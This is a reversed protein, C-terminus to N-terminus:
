DDLFRMYIEGNRRLSLYKPIRKIPLIKNGPLKLGKKPIRVKLRFHKTDKDFEYKDNQSWWRFPRGGVALTESLDLFLLQLPSAPNNNFHRTAEQWQPLNADVEVKLGSIPEKVKAEFKLTSKGNRKSESWFAMKLDGKRSVEAGGGVIENTEEVASIPSRVDALMFYKVLPPPPNMPKFAFVGITMSGITEQTSLEYGETYPWQSLLRYIWSIEVMAEDPEITMGDITSPFLWGTGPLMHGVLDYVDEANAILFIKCEVTRFSYGDYYGPEGLNPYEVGNPDFDYTLMDEAQIENVGLVPLTHFSFCVLLAIIFTVAFRSRPKM